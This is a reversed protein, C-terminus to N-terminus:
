VVQGIRPFLHSFCSAKHQVQSCVRSDLESSNHTYSNVRDEFSDDAMERAFCQSSLRLKAIMWAENTGSALFYQHSAEGCDAVM